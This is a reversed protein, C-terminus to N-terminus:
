IKKNRCVDINWGTSDCDGKHKRLQVKAIMEATRYRVRIVPDYGDERPEAVSFRGPRLTTSEAPVVPEFHEVGLHFQIIFAHKRRPIGVPPDEDLFPVTGPHFAVNRRNCQSWAAPHPPQWVKLAINFRRCFIMIALNYAMGGALQHERWHTYLAEVDVDDGM